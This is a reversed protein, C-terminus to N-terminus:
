EGEESVSLLAEVLSPDPLAGFAGKSYKDIIDSESRVGDKEATFQALSYLYAQHIDKDTFWIQDKRFLTKIDLLSVDHTTCILQASANIYNNFLSIIERSIKFQLGSDLEDIILIKGKELAEVMYSALAVIKKTGSSDFKISPLPKGRHVSILRLQDMLQDANQIAKKLREDKDDDSKFEIEISEAYRFDDIDLDAAKILSVVKKAEITDLKKLVEITKLPSIQNMNLFVISDALKRLVRKAEDLLPFDSTDFAYILISDKSSLGIIDRLKDDISYSTKSQTDREFYVIEKRNGYEDIEIRGFHERQYAEANTDYDFSYTFRTGDSLFEAGLRVVNSGSFVNASFRFPRNLLVDRYAVIAEITCTKGTNNPGYIALAKLANGQSSQIVNSLFKRTHLNAEMSLEVPKQFVEFNEITFKLLM